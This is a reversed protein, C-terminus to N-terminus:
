VLFNKASLLGYNFLYDLCSLGQIMDKRGSQSYIPHAFDQFLVNIGNKTFSDLNMYDKAGVGSLYNKYGVAMVLSEILESKKKQRDYNIESMKILETKINFFDMSIKLSEVLVDILSLYSKSYFDELYPMLDAFGSHRKYNIRFFNLHSETWNQDNLLLENIMKDRYGKKQIGITLTETDGNNKLFINRHQFARDSLQVEDMVIFLDSKNIKDLLGFWPFYSPQHISVIRQDKNMM